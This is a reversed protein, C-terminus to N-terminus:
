INFTFFFVNGIGDPFHEINISLIYTCLYDLQNKEFIISSNSLLQTFKTDMFKHKVANIIKERTEITENNRRTALTGSPEEQLLITLPLTTEIKNNADFTVRKKKKDLKKRKNSPKM